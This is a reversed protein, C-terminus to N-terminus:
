FESTTYIIRSKVIPDCYFKSKSVGILLPNIESHDPIKMDIEIM